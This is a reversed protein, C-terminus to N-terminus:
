NDKDELGDDETDPKLLKEVAELSLRHVFYTGHRRFKFCLKKVGDDDEIWYGTM